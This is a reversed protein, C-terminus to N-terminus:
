ATVLYLILPLIFERMILPRTVYGGTRFCYKSYEEARRNLHRRAPWPEGSVRIAHGGIRLPPVRGKAGRGGFRLWWDNRHDPLRTHRDPVVSSRDLGADRERKREGGGIEKGNSPVARAFWLVMGHYAWCRQAGGFFCHRAQRWPRRSGRNTRTSDKRTEVDKTMSCRSVSAYTQGTEALLKRFTRTAFRPTHGTNCVCLSRATM